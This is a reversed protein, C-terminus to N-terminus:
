PLKQSLSFNKMWLVEGMPSLHVLVALGAGHSGLLYYDGSTGPIFSVPNYVGGLEMKDRQVNYIVEWASSSSALPLFLAVVLFFAVFIPFKKM